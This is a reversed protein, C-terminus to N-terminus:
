LPAFYYGLGLLWLVDVDSSSFFDLVRIELRPRVDGLPAYLGTVAAYQIRLGTSATPSDEILGNVVGGGAGVYWPASPGLPNGTLSVFGRWRDGRGHLRMTFSANASLADAGARLPFRLTGGFFSAGADHVTTGALHLAIELPSARDPNRTWFLIVGCVQDPYSGPPVFEPPLRSYNQDTYAEVAALELAPLTENITSLDIFRVGDLYAIMCAPLSRASPERMARSMPSRGHRAFAETDLGLRRLQPTLDPGISRRIEEQTLYRGFGEERRRYFGALGPNTLVVSDGEVVVADLGVSSRPLLADVSLSTQAPSVAAEKATAAYGIRRFVLTVYSTDVTLAPIEFSGKEDTTTVAVGRHMVSVAPVPEGSVADRVRGTVTITRQQALLSSSSSVAAAIVAWRLGVAILRIASCDPNSSPM